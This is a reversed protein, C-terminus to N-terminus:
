LLNKVPDRFPLIIMLNPAVAVPFCYSTIVMRIVKM